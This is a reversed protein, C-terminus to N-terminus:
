SYCYMFRITPGMFKSLKPEPINKQSEVGTEALVLLMLGLLLPGRNGM